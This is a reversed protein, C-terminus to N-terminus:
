AGKELLEVGNAYHVKDIEFGLGRRDLKRAARITSAVGAFPDLVTEFTRSSQKILFALLEYPKEFGHSRDTSSTPPYNIVDLSPSQLTRLDTSDKAPKYGFLILEYSRMYNLGFAGIQNTGKSWVIPYTAVTFGCGQFLGWFMEYDEVSLFCYIHRGPKLVRWLEPVICEMLECLEPYTLNDHKRVLTHKTNINKITQTAYPPDTLILDVSDTAISTMGEVADCLVYDQETSRCSLAGSQILREAAAEQKIKRLAAKKPLKALDEKDKPHERLHTALALDQVVKGVSEGLSEALAKRSWGKGVSASSGGLVPRGFKKAKLEDIQLKIEVEETWGLDKRHLNEELELEKRTLGDVDERCIVPLETLGALAAARMRREGAILKYKVELPPQGSEAPMLDVVLPQILGHREISDSLAGLDGFEQRTRKGVIIQSLKLDM